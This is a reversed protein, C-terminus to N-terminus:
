QKKPLKDWDEASIDRKPWAVKKFPWATAVWEKMDAYLKADFGADFQAKTVWLRVAADYGEKRSPQIYVCGLETTGDLSLVAYTFSRRAQFRAQEGEVDKVAEKMTLGAHPWNGGTFTSRLHDISSMYAAYDHKALEPGLPVLKYTPQAYETPVPFDPSVFPPPGPQAGSHSVAFALILAGVCWHAATVVLTRRFLFRVM